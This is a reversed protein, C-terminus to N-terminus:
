NNPFFSSIFLQCHDQNNGVPCNERSVWSSKASTTVVRVCQWLSFFVHCASDLRPCSCFQSLLQGTLKPSHGTTTRMVKPVRRDGKFTHSLIHLSCPNLWYIYVTYLMEIWESFQINVLVFCFSIPKIYNNFTRHMWRQCSFGWFDM